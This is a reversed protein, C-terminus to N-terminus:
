TSSAVLLMDCHRPFWPPLRPQRGQSLEATLLLPTGEYLRTCLICGGDRAYAFAASGDTTVLTPFNQKQHSM